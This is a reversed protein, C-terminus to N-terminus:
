VAKSNRIRIQQLWVSKMSCVDEKKLQLRVSDPKLSLIYHKNYDSPYQKHQVCFCERVNTQCAPPKGAPQIFAPKAGLPLSM